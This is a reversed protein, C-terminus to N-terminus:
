RPPPPQPPTLAQWNLQFTGSEAGHGDVAIWYTNSAQATFTLLSQRTPATLGCTGPPVEDNSAVPVLTALSPGVYVAITTDFDCTNVGIGYTTAPTLKYWLSHGGPDGAHNPEGPEKTADVNSAIAWYTISFPSWPPNVLQRASAFADNSPRAHDQFTCTVQQGASLAITARANPLDATGRCQLDSWGAGM